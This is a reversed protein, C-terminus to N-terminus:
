MRMMADRPESASAHRSGHRPPPWEIDYKLIRRKLAHRTIGLLAAAEVISGASELARVCLMREAKRLNLDELLIPMVPGYLINAQDFLGKEDKKKSTKRKCYRASELQIPSFRRCANQFPVARYRSIAGSKGTAPM